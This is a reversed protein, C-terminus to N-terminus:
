TPTHRDDRITTFQDGVARNGPHNEPGSASWHPASPDGRDVTAVNQPVASMAALPAASWWRKAGSTAFANRYHCVGKVLRM